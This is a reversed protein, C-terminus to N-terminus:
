PQSISQIENLAREYAQGAELESTFTGIYKQKGNIRIRALWKNNNHLTVGRFKSTTNNKNFRLSINERNSLIRLNELRNDTKVTNIHDIVLKHGDPIHDLFSIAVLQHVGFRKKTNNKYLVVMHYGFTNIIPKMILEKGVKLSKVRGLDSVLYARDYGTVERWNENM